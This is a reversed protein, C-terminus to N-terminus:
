NQNKVCRVIYLNARTMRIKSLIHTWLENSVVGILATGFCRTSSASRTLRTWLPHTQQSSWCRRRLPTVLSSWTWSLLMFQSQIKTVQMSFYEEPEALEIHYIGSIFGRSCDLAQPGLMRLFAVTSASKAPGREFDMSTVSVRKTSRLAVGLGLWHDM